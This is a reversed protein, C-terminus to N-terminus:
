KLRFDVRSDTAKGKKEPPLLKPEVVFVRDATVQGSKLIADKSHAARETALTRLDGDNVAIHALMLKEMEPVPLGKALGVLNRPKAFTEAKYAMTLYQEYEGPEVKIEDVTEVPLGKRIMTNMKQVRVKRNFFYTKLADADREADVHGEIDLKLSPRDFLAKVLGDVKKLNPESLRFDGYDFELYSLEEGHGVLAGLLAFPATAAKAILNVLVKIVIRFVSFQPDDLSGSVPVDLTIRGNRDRLLAIALGIPLKVADPSEVKDGLILQDIHIVNQSDLRRKEIFYKLDMSLKGKEIKYGIYKGSYPSMDSLDLDTFRVKLDAFLNEKAPNVTGVILLPISQNIKGRLEVEANQNGKVSFGAVKGGIETLNASYRPKISTDAFDITGGQLTIGGVSIDNAGGGGAPGPKKAAAAREDRNKAPEVTRSEKPGPAAGGEEEVVIKKLNLTGDEGVALRAYFDALSIGAVRARMPNYGADISSMSLAKWKFLEDGTAKDVSAFDSILASGAFRASFGTRTDDTAAITGSTQLQGKTIAIKLKETFYPQFARIGIGKATVSLNAAVPNIGVPGKVTVQGTKDLLLSLSVDAKSEKKTSIHDGKITLATVKLEVPERGADDYFTITGDEIALGEVSVDPPPGEETKVVPAPPGAGKSAEKEKPFLAALNILGGKERRITVDPRLLAVRSLSLSGLLPQFSAVGVECSALRVLPRKKMDDMAFTKLVVNGSVTCTSPKGKAQVFSVRVKVDLAGSQLVFNTKVPVYAMYRPLDLNQIAVDIHTEHTENFPKTEGSISYHSGNIDASFSPDVYAEIYKGINSVFPIAVDMDKVIHHINKSSDLFDIRGGSIVINSISFLLPKPKGGKKTERPPKEPGKAMLDAFNYAGDGGRVVRIYPKVLKLERLIVARKFISGVHVRASLEGLSAFIDPAGREKVVFGRMSFSLLYPNIRIREISVERHVAESLKSALVHKVVPPLVLFGVITILAFVGALWAAVKISRHVFRQANM